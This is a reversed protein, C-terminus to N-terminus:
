LHHEEFLFYQSFRLKDLPILCVGQLIIFTIFKNMQTYKIVNMGLEIFYLPLLIRRSDEKMSRWPSKALSYLRTHFLGVIRGNYPSCSWIPSLFCMLVYPIVMRSNTILIFIFFRRLYVRLFVSFFVVPFQSFFYKCQGKRKSTNFTLPFIYSFFPFLFHVLSFFLISYFHFCGLFFM